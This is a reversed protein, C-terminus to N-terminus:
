SRLDHFSLMVELIVWLCVYSLEGRRVCVSVSVRGGCLCVFM